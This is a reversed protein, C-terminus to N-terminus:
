VDRVVFTMMKDGCLFYRFDVVLLPNM